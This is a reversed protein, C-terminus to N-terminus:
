RATAEKAQGCSIMWPVGYRDQFMAFREVFFTEGFPMTVKGGESLENYIRKGETISPVQLSVSFGRKESDSANASDSAMIVADGATLRAHLIKSGWEAPVHQEAPTATHPLMADIKGKLVREYFRFAEECDGHFYLYPQITM